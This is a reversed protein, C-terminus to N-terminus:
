FMVPLLYKTNVKEGNCLGSSWRPSSELLKIFKMDLSTYESPVKKSIKVDNISGDKLVVFELKVRGNNEIFEKEEVSVNNRIFKLLALKGEIFEPQKSVKTYINMKLITDYYSSCSDQLVATDTKQVSLLNTCNSLFFITVFILILNKM